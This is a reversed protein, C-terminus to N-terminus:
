SKKVEDDFPDSIPLWQENIINTLYTRFDDAMCKFSYWNYLRKKDDCILLDKVILIEVETVGVVRNLEKGYEKQIENFLEVPIDINIFRTGVM